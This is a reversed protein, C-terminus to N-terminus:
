SFSTWGDPRASAYHVLVLCVAEGLDLSVGWARPDREVCGRLLRTGELTRLVERWIEKWFQGGKYVKNAQGYVNRDQCGAMM